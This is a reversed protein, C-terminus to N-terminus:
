VGDLLHVEGAAIGAPQFAGIGLEREDVTRNGAPAADIPGPHPRPQGPVGGCGQQVDAAAASVNGHQEGPPGGPVSQAELDGGNVGIRPGDQEGPAAM